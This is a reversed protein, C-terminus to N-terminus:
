GRRAVDVRGILDAVIPSKGFPIFTQPPSFAVEKGFRGANRLTLTVRPPNMMYAYSVNIIESLPIREEDNGFRVVLSDGADFVQDALDLVLKRIIFYGFAAMIAPMIFFVIPPSNGSKKAIFPVVFIFALFGFWVVPFVRKMFFTSRSSIRQM